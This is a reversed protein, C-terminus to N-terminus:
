RSVENDMIFQIIDDMERVLDERIGAINVQEGIDVALNFLQPEKMLGSEINKTGHIWSVPGLNAAPRIYKFDGQRISYTYSELMLYDRGKDSNGLLADLVNHSDPAEVENLPHGILAALSAYLDIQGILADSV